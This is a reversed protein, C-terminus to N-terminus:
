ISRRKSTTKQRVQFGAPVKGNFYPLVTPWSAAWEVIELSM